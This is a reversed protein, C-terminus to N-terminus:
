LKNYSDEETFVQEKRMLIMDFSLHNRNAEPSTLIPFQGLKTSGLM